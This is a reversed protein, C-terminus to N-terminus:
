KIKASRLIDAAALVNRIDMDKYNTANGTVAAERASLADLEEWPVLCAHTRAATNKGIRIPRRGQAIDEKYRAARRDYEERTMTSYGMCFHFANWRLHEMKGLNELLQGEPQWKGAVAQEATTGAARFIAPFFDASARSSVRSFYDCALWNELATRGSDHQYVQNIGMALADIKDYRLLDPSYISDEDALPSAATAHLIGRRSCQYVPIQLELQDFYALIDGAIEQNLSTSGTCVVVYKLKEAREALFDFFADSRADQPQLRIDYNEMLSRCTSRLYGGLSACKPDFVTCRFRSDVFQGNMVLARLISQGLTGFGIILAEFDEAAAGTEDFSLTDCPPYKRMLLRSVLDCEQFVTVFGYGYEEHTNLLKSAGSDSVGLIMLSTQAAKVERKGLAERFRVAYRLNRVGDHDLAYLQIKRKGPRIGISKLFRIDADAAHDDTFLLCGSQEVAEVCDGDPQPDVFVVMDRNGEMLDRGFEVSDPNVGYIVCLDGRLALWLRLKKVAETGLAAITASATAYLASLHVFWFLGRFWGTNGLAVDPLVGDDMEGLFMRCVALVGRVAASVFGSEQCAYCYGYVVFGGVAAITVAAGTMRASVKRDAALQIVMACFVAGIALIVSAYPIM